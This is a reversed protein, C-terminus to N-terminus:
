KYIILIRSPIMKVNLSLGRVLKCKKTAIDWECFIIDTYAFTHVTISPNNIVLFDSRKSLILHANQWVTSQTLEVIHNCWKSKLLINPFFLKIPVVYPHQIHNQIFGPLLVRYTYLWKSRMKGDWYSSCHCAAWQQFLLFLSKFPMRTQVRTYLCM